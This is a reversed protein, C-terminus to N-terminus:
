PAHVAKGNTSLPELIDLIHECAAAVLGGEKALAAFYGHGYFRVEHDKRQFERGLAMFPLMDGHSGGAAILIRM